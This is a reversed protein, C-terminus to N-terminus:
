MSRALAFHPLICGVYEKIANERGSVPYLVLQGKGSLM